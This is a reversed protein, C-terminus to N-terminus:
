PRRGSKTLTAANRVPAHLWRFADPTPVRIGKPSVILLSLKAVDPLPYIEDGRGIGLARGGFLFLPVDAGLAAALEALVAM